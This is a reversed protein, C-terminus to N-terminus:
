LRCCRVCFLCLRLFWLASVSSVFARGFGFWPGPWFGVFLPYLAFLSLVFFLCPTSVHRVCLAVHSVCRKSARGFGVCPPYLALRVGSVHFGFCVCPPCPKSARGCRVFPPCMRSLTQFRPWLPCLASSLSWSRPGLGKKRLSFGVTFQKPCFFVKIVQDLRSAPKFPSLLGSEAGSSIVQTSWSIESSGMRQLFFYSYWVFMWVWWGDLHIRM